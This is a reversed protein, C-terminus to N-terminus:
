AREAVFLQDDGIGARRAAEVSWELRAIQDAHHGDSGLSFTAGAERAKRLLRDHPLRYRNSIEIAVGAAVTAAIFRDERDETWWALVDGELELLAQPMFTPHAVIDIPMERVLDCLNVVMSEMVEASRGSWGIPLTSSWPSMMQGDPLPFGHNSGILYDTREILEQVIESSFSDCWCLEASRLVPAADLASLYRDLEERTAVMARPTRGSVHDAIGIRVRREAALAVVEELTLSGDSMTTHAHLDQTGLLRAEGGSEAADAM